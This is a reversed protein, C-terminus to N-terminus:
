DSDPLHHLYIDEFESSDAGEPIPEVALSLCFEAGLLELRLEDSVPKIRPLWEPPLKVRPADDGRDLVLDSGSGKLPEPTFGSGYKPDPPASGNIEVPHSDDIVGLSNLKQLVGSARKVHM